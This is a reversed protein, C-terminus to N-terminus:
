CGKNKNLSTSYISPWPMVGTLLMFYYCKRQIAFINGQGKTYLIDSKIDLSKFSSTDCRISKLSLVPYESIIIM